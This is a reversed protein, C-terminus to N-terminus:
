QELAYRPVFCDRLYGKATGGRIVHKRIGFVDHLTHQLDGELMGQLNLPTRVHVATLDAVTDLMDLPVVGEGFKSLYDNCREIIRLLMLLNPNIQSM